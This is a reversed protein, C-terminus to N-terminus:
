LLLPLLTELKSVWPWVVCPARLVLERNEFVYTLNLLLLLLTVTSGIEEEDRALFEVFLDGM